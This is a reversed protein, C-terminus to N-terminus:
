GGLSRMLFNVGLRLLGISFALAILLVFGEFGVSFIKGIPDRKFEAVQAKVIEM